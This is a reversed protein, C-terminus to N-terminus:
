SARGGLVIDRGGHAEAMDVLLRIVDHPDEWRVYTGDPQGEGREQERARNAETTTLWGESEGRDVFRLVAAWRLSEVDAWVWGLDPRGKGITRADHCERCLGALLEPMDCWPWGLGAGTGVRGFVHEPDLGLGQRHCLECRAGQRLLRIALATKSRKYFASRRIARAGSPRIATRDRRAPILSV